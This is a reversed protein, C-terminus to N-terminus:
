IIYKKLSIKGARLIRTNLVVRYFFTLFSQTFYYLVAMDVPAAQMLCGENEQLNILTMEDQAYLCHEGNAAKKIIIIKMKYIISCCFYRYYILRPFHPFFHSFFLFFFDSYKIVDCKGAVIGSTRICDRIRTPFIRFANLLVGLFTEARFLFRVFTLM